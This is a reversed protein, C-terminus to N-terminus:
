KLTIFNSYGKEKLEKSLKEANSKINFAGVQVTYLTDQQSGLKNLEIQINNIFTEWHNLTISPCGSTKDFTSHNKVKDVGWNYEKLKIAIDKIAMKESELYDLECIEWNLFEKSKWGKNFDSNAWSNRTDDINQITGNKDSVYHFSREDRTWSLNTNENLATSNKNGNNHVSIGKPSIQYPCKVDNQSSPIIKKIIM